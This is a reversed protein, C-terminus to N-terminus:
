VDIMIVSNKETILSDLESKVKYIEEEMGEIEKEIDFAKVLRPQRAKRMTEILEKADDSKVTKDKGVLANTHAELERDIEICRQEFAKTMQKLSSDLHNNFEVTYAISRKLEIAQALTMKRNNFEIENSANAQAIKGVINYYRTILDKVSQLQAKQKEIFDAESTYGAPVSNPTLVVCPRLKVIEKTIRDYLRKKEVLARTISMQM